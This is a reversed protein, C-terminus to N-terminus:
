VLYFTASIAGSLLFIFFMCRIVGDRAVQPVEYTARGTRVLGHYCCILPITTGFILSKLVSLMVDEMTLASFFDRLFLDFPLVLRLTAVLFGGVLAIADFYVTLCFVSIAGGVMRPVVIFHFPDIGMAELVEIEGTVKNVALETAIATGSRSIVVMATLLPGFERVIALVLIKGIWHTAGLESVVPLAQVIVTFGFILSILTLLFMAQVGTFRVQDMIVRFSAGRNWKKFDLFARFAISAFVFTEVTGHSIFRAKRGIQAVINPM